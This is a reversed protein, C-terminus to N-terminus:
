NLHASISLIGCSPLGLRGCDIEIAIAQTYLAGVRISLGDELEVSHGGVKDAEGPGRIREILVLDLTGPSTKCVAAAVVFNPEIFSLATSRNAVEHHEGGVERRSAESVAVEGGLVLNLVWHSALPLDVVAEENL